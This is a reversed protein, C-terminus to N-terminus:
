QAGWLELCSSYTQFLFQASGSSKLQISTIPNLNDWVGINEVWSDRQANNFFNGKSTIMKSGTTSDANEIICWGPGVTGASAIGNNRGNIAFSTLNAPYNYIATTPAQSQGWTAITSIGYNNGTDNNIIILADEGGSNWGFGGWTLKYRKYGSLNSFTYSTSNTTVRSILTWENPNVSSAAPAPFVSYGM